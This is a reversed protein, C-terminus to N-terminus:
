PKPVRILGTDVGPRRLVKYFGGRAPDYDIVANQDALVKVFVALRRETVASLPLGRAQRAAARLMVREYADEHEKAIPTWPIFDAYRGLRRGDASTDGGTEGDRHLAVEVASRSIPRYAAPNMTARNRENVLDAIQQGTLGDVDRLRVLESVEPLFRQAPM